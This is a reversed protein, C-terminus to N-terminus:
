ATTGKRRTRTALYETVGANRRQTMAVLGAEAALAIYDALLRVGNRELRDDHLFGTHYVVRDGPRASSVFGGFQVMTRIVSERM